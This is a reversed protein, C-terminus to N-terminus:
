LPCDCACFLFSMFVTSTASACLRGSLIHYAQGAHGYQYEPPEVQVSFLMGADNAFLGAALHRQQHNLVLVLLVPDARLVQWDQDMMRLFQGPDQGSCLLQVSVFMLAAARLSAAQRQGNEVALRIAEHELVPLIRRVAPVIQGTSAAYEGWNGAAHLDAPNAGQFGISWMLTYSSIGLKM